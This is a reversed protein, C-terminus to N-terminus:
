TAPSISTSRFRTDWHRSGREGTDLHMAQQWLPDVLGGALVDAVLVKKAMGIVLLWIRNGM